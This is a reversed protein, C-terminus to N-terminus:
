EEYHAFVNMALVERRARERERQALPCCPQVGCRWARHLLRTLQSYTVERERRDLDEQSGVLQKRTKRPM